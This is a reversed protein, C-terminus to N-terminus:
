VIKVICKLLKLSNYLIYHRKLGKFEQAKETITHFLSLSDELCCLTDSIYSPLQTLYIFKLVAYVAKVVYLPVLGGSFPLGIILGLLICCIIMHEQWVSRTRMGGGHGFNEHRFFNRGSWLLHVVSQLEDCSVGLVENSISRPM